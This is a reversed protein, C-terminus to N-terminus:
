QKANRALSLYGTTAVGDVQGGFRTPHAIWSVFISALWINELSEWTRITSRRFFDRDALRSFSIGSRFWGCHFLPALVYVLTVFGFITFGFGVISSLQLPIITFGTIM